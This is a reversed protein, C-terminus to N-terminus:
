QLREWQVPAWQRQKGVRTHWALRVTQGAQNDGSQCQNLHRIRGRGMQVAQLRHRAPVRRYSNPGLLGYCGREMTGQASNDHATARAGTVCHSSLVPPLTPHTGGGNEGVRTRLYEKTKTIGQHGEHALKAVRDRLSKPVVIRARRVILGGVVALETFIPDYHPGLMGKRQTTFYGSAIAEKLSSLEMDALAEKVLEQWTVTEPVSSNVIATIDKDIEGETERLEFEVQKSSPNNQQVALPEPYRSNYGAENSESEAKKGPVYNVRYGFGQLRVQM